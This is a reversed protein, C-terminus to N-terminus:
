QSGQHYLNHSRPCWQSCPPKVDGQGYRLPPFWPGGASMVSVTTWCAGGVGAGAVSWPCSGCGGAAESDGTRLLVGAVGGGTLDECRAM